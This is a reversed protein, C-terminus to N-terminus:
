ESSISNNVGSSSILRSGGSGFKKRAARAEQDFNAEPSPSGEGGVLEALGMDSYHKRLEVVDHQFWRILWDSYEAEAVTASKLGVQVQEILHGAYIGSMLGKLVGHSSAPDLVAAADGCLFYGPGAPKTACRWTVDAGFTSMREARPGDFPEHRPLTCPDKEYRSAASKGLRTWQYTQERVRAIWTWGDADVTLTPIDHATAYDGEVYGYRAVLRPSEITLPIQLKKALWHRGGAADITFNAMVRGHNSEVGIVVGNEVLVNKVDCPQLIRVGLSIARNLLIEDFDARWAQLGLWPGNADAGFEIVRPQEQGRLCVRIGAHRVFGAQEVQEWVGLQRLLPEVGPHLTEGPRHRPFEARELLVVSLGAMACRIAAATGAPGAGIIAVVVSDANM